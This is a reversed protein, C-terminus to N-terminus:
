SDARTAKNCFGEYLQFLGAKLAISPKWGQEILKSSDMIKRPMGDPMSTDYNIKGRFGTIESILEVLEQISVDENVGANYFNETLHNEMIFLCANACDKVHMFERRATGTGWITVDSNTIMANHFKSILAPIVHSTEIEYNDNEGYLNPPMISLFNCSKEKSLYECYKIGIIKALAYGENTPELRGTLLYEERMPQVCDRPYICSSGLFLLKKVHNQHAANIINSEIMINDYLFAYQNNMNAKIGGVKAAALFVYMPKEIRFFENVENQSRLDLEASTKTVIARYGKENLLKVIASGVMGNHGAVYIKDVTNM